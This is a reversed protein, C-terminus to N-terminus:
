VWIEITPCLFVAQRLDDEPKFTRREKSGPFIPRTAPDEDIGITLGNDLTMTMAIRGVEIAKIARGVVQQSLEDGDESIWPKPSGNQRYLLDEVRRGAAQLWEGAGWVAIILWEEGLRFAFFGPGGMGYTGAYPVIEDIRRGVIDAQRLPGPKFRVLKASPGSAPQDPIEFKTIITTM